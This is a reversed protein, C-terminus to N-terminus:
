ETSAGYFKKLFMPTSYIPDNLPVGELEYRPLLFFFLAKHMLFLVVRWLWGISRWVGGRAHYKM